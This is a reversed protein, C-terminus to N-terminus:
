HGFNRVNWSPTIIFLHRCLSKRYILKVGLFSSLQSAEPMSLQIKYGLVPLEYLYYSLIRSSKGFLKSPTLPLLSSTTLKWSSAQMDVIFNKVLFQYTSYFFTKSFYFLEFDWKYHFVENYIHLCRRPLQGSWWQKRESWWFEKPFWGSNQRIVKLSNGTSLCM